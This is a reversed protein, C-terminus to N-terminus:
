ERTELRPDEWLMAFGVIDIPGMEVAGRFLTRFVLTVKRAEFRSLDVHIEPNPASAWAWVQEIPFEQSWILEAGDDTAAWIEANLASGPMVRTPRRYDVRLKLEARAPIVVPCRTAVSSRRSHIDPVQYLIPFLLHERVYQDPMPEEHIECDFLFRLTPREPLPFPRRRRYGFRNNAVNFVPAFHTRLYRTLIPAYERMGASDSFFNNYDHVVLDVRKAEVEARLSAGGDYGIDHAWTNYYRSPVPRGTLFNLMSLSPLTLVADDPRTLSQIAEVQFDILNADIASV